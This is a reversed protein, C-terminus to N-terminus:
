IMDLEARNRFLHLTTHSTQVRVCGVEVRQPHAPGIQELLPLDDPGGAPCDILNIRCLKMIEKKLYRKKIVNLSSYNKSTM